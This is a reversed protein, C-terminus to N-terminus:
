HRSWELHLLSYSVSLLNGCGYRSDELFVRDVLHFLHYLDWPLKILHM